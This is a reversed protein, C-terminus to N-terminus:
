TKELIVRIFCFIAVKMSRDLESLHGEEQPPTKQERQSGSSLCFAIKHRKSRCLYDVRWLMRRLFGEFVRVPM